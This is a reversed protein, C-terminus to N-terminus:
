GPPSDGLQSHGKMECSSRPSEPASGKLFSPKHGQKPLGVRAQDTQVAAQSGPGEALHSGQGQAAEM